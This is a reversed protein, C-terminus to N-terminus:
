KTFNNKFDLYGELPYQTEHGVMMRVTKLDLQDLTKLDKLALRSAKLRYISAFYPLEAIDEFFIFGDTVIGNNIELILRTHAVEPIKSFKPFIWNAARFVLVTNDGSVPTFVKVIHDYMIDANPSNDVKELAEINVRSYEYRGILQFIPTTPLEGDYFIFDDNSGKIQHGKEQCAFVALCILAIVIIAKGRPSNAHSETMNTIFSVYLM